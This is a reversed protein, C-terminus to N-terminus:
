ADSDNTQLKIKISFFVQGINRKQGVAARTRKRARGADSHRSSIVIFKFPIIIGEQKGDLANLIYPLLYSNCFVTLLTLNGYKSILSLPRQGKRNM